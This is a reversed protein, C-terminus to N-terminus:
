VTQEAEFAEEIRQQVLEVLKPSYDLHQGTTVGIAPNASQWEGILRPLDQRVHNGLHLFYPIVIIRTAGLDRCTTLGIPIDPQSMELFACEVIGYQGTTKLEAAVRYM